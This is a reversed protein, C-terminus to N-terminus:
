SKVGLRYSTKVKYKDSVTIVKGDWPDIAVLDSVSIGSGGGTKKCGIITIWHQPTNGTVHLISPKGAMLENYAAQLVAAESAYSKTTYGGKSWVCDVNTSSSWYSHPSTVTGTLIVNCYALAYSACAKKELATGNSQYGVAAIKAADYSLTMNSGGSLAGVTFERNILIIDTKTVDRIAVLYRYTGETLKGFTIASDATSVTGFCSDGNWKKQLMVKGSKDYVSVSFLSISYRSAIMGKLTFAHGVLLRAPYTAGSVFAAPTPKAIKEWVFRWKKNRKRTGLMLTNGESCVFAKAGVCKLYTSGGSGQYLSFIQNNDKKSYKKQVLSNSAKHYTLYLSSNENKLRIKKGGASEVKWMRCANDGKTWLSVAANEAMSSNKVEMVLEKKDQSAIYYYGVSKHVTQNITIEYKKKEFYLHTLKKKGSTTTVCLTYWGKKKISLTKESKKIKKGKKWVKGSTSRIKGQRFSIKKTSKALMKKELAAVSGADKAKEKAHSPVPALILVLALISGIIGVGAFRLRNKIM